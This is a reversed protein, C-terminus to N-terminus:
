YILGATPDPDHTLSSPHQGDGTNLAGTAPPTNQSQSPEELNHADLYEQHHSCNLEFAHDAPLDEIQELNFAPRAELTALSTYHYDHDCPTHHFKTSCLLDQEEKIGSENDNERKLDGFTFHDVETFNGALISHQSLRTNNAIKPIPVRITVNKFFTMSSYAKDSSKSARHILDLEDQSCEIIIEETNVGVDGIERNSGLVQEVKSHFLILTYNILNTATEKQYLQINGQLKQAFDYLKDYYQEESKREHEPLSEVYSNYESEVSKVYLLWEGLLEMTMNLGTLKMNATALDKQTINDFQETSLKESIHALASSSDEKDVTIPNIYSVTSLVDDLIRYYDTSRPNFEKKSLSHLANKAKIYGYKADLLVVCLIHNDSTREKNFDEDDQIALPHNRLIEAYSQQHQDHKLNKHANIGMVLLTIFVALALLLVVSTVVASIIIKNRNEMM